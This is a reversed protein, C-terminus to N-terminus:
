FVGQNMLWSWEDDLPLTHDVPVVSEPLLGLLREMELSGEDLTTSSVLGDFDNSPVSTTLLLSANTDVTKIDNATISPYM